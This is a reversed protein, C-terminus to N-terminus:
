WVRFVRTPNGVKSYAEYVDPLEERLKKSDISVRGKQSKWTVKRNGVLATDAEGMQLQIEQKIMEQEAKLSGLLVEIDNYRAMRGAMGSLDLTQPISATYMEKIANGASESGDPAPLRKELVNKYWFDREIAILNRIIDEDREVVRWVFDIGMILCAIYVKKKGTVAIYHHCQIEYQEPIAGDAWKDASYANATKCELLADEGVIVRDVDGIMWDHEDHQLVANLRRVKKGTAECFRDAVYEELDRGVRMAENDVDEVKEKTKDMYVDIPSRWPNLGCVASADSGGIGKKRIRLWDEHSLTKTDALIRM